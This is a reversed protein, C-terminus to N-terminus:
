KERLAPMDVQWIYLPTHRIDDIGHRAVIVDDFDDVALVAADEQVLQALEDYLADAQARSPASRAEAILRDVKPNGYGLLNLGGGTMWVPSAWADPHAADPNLGALLADPAKEPRTAYSFQAAFTDGKLKVEFGAPKLQAQLYQVLRLLSTQGAGTAYSLTLEVPEAPKEATLPTLRGLDSDGAIVAPYNSTAVRGTKGYVVSVAEEPRLAASFARRVAPDDFPPKHTNLFLVHRLAAPFIKAQLNPNQEVNPLGAADIGHTMMDLDGSELQLRQTGLDPIVPFEVKAFGARGGWWDDNRTLEATDGIRLSALRYPGTGVANGALWRQAHDSGAHQKLAKPSIMKPGYMSALLDLFANNRARLRIVVVYRKSADIQEVDAVMYSVAQRVALRREISAKVAASDFPTGDHFRVDDRLGFTYTRGDKSVNWVTALAPGVRTSGPEYAVLGEYLSTIISEGEVGYFVDPDIGGAPSEQYPIRLVADATAGGGAPTGGGPPTSRESSGGCGALAAVAGLALLAHPLRM